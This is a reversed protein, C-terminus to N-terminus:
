DTYGMDHKITGKSADALSPRRACFAHQNPDSSSQADQIQNLLNNLADKIKTETRITQEVLEDIARDMSGLVQTVLIGDIKGKPAAELGVVDAAASAAAGVVTLSMALAGTGGTLMTAISAVVTFLIVQDNKTCDRMQDLFNYTAEAIQAIDERAAKWMAQEAELASKLAAVLLFQNHLVAPFPTLFKTIFEQAAVGSWGHVDAKVSDMKTMVVNAPYVRGNRSIPDRTDQGSSLIALSQQLQAIPGDFRAPDPLETFPRFRGPVTSAREAVNRAWQEVMEKSVMDESEQIETRGLETARRRIAEATQMLNEFGVGSV